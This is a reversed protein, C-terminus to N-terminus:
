EYFVDEIDPNPLAGFLGRLYATRTKNRVGKDKNAKFDSLSYLSIKDKERSTFWIQDKRFLFITDLLMLDHTTFILQCNKNEDSNFLSIIAKTLLTHLSRDLEDIILIGGSRQLKLIKIIYNMFVKTGDSELLLTPLNMEVNKFVHKSYLKLAPVEDLQKDDDIYIDELNIDANLAVKKFREFEEEDLSSADDYISKFDSTGKVIVMNTFFSIIDDTYKKYDTPLNTILLKDDYNKFMDIFGNIEVNQTKNNRDLLLEDNIFLKENIIKNYKSDASIIDIDELFGISLEYKYKINNFIFSILFEIKKDKIYSCYALPNILRINDATMSNVTGNLVIRKLLLLSEIISSKGTNNPGYIAVSKLLTNGTADFVFEKNNLIKNNSKMSLRVNNAFPKYGNIEYEILM